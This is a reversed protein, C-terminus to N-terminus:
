LLFIFIGPVSTMQGQVVLIPDFTIANPWTGNGFFGFLDGTTYTASADMDKWLDLYYTGPALNPFSFTVSYETGTASVSQIVANAFWDAQSAYIAVRSNRLDAQVGAAVTATGTIGTQAQRVTLAGTGTATGGNGDSVTVTVSYAGGTSPATWNATAGTGVASGGNAAYTYTLADGDQDSATVTITATGGAAVSTPSVTILTIVPDHNTPDTTGNDDDDGCGLFVLPLVFLLAALKLLKRDVM